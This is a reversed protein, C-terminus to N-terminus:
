RNLQHDVGQTRGGGQVNGRRGLVTRAAFGGATSYFVPPATFLALTFLYPGLMYSVPM